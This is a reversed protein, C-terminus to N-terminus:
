ATYRCGLCYEWIYDDLGNYDPQWLYTGFKLSMRSLMDILDSYGSQVHYNILFDMDFATMVQRVGCEILESLVRELHKLSNVGPVALVSQGTLCHVIDAKMPGEILIVRESVPGALHVWGEAGCGNQIESSSVWRYKRREENDLRVQMGQIRGHMDRVPILMGRKIPVFSWQGDTDTFFGPIGALNQGAAILEGALAKEGETPTTRYENGIIAQKTLGRNLLGRMHDPALSLMSLLASYVSHRNEIKAVPSEIIDQPPMAPICPPKKQVSDSGLVRMLEERIGKRPTNSYFSYLDFIGGNWGCKPCCFVDKTLNINLHNDKKRDNRDCHPCPVYYSSKGHPPYPLPLLPIIDTMHITDM